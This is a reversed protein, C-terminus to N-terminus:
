QSYSENCRKCFLVPLSACEIGTDLRRRRGRDRRFPYGLSSPKSVNLKQSAVLELPALCSRRLKQLSSGINFVLELGDPQLRAPHISITLWHTEATGNNVGIMGREFEYLLATRGVSQLDTALRRKRRVCLTQNINFCWRDKGAISKDNRLKSDVVELADVQVAFDSHDETASWCCNVPREPSVESGGGNTPLSELLCPRNADDCNGFWSGLRRIRSAVESCQARAM